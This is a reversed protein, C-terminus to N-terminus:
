IACESAKLHRASPGDQVFNPADKQDARTLQKKANRWDAHIETVM